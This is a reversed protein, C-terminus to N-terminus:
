HSILGKVPARDIPEFVPLVQPYSPHHPDHCDICNNRYRGGKSLDWHGTMGGHSGKHYDRSQTGHCQACLSKVQRFPLSSGDALHLTDYNNANHCSLCNLRGHDFELGQHFQQLQDASRIDPNPTITSHCTSCSVTVAEGALNTEGTFVRPPGEPKRVVVEHLPAFVNAKEGEKDFKPVAPHNPLASLLLGTGSALVTFVAIAGWAWLKTKNTTSHSM